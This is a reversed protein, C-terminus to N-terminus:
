FHLKSLVFGNHIKNKLVVWPQKPIDHFIHVCLKAALKRVIGKEANAKYTVLPM